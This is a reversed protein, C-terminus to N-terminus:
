VQGTLLKRRRASTVQPVYVQKRKRREFAIGRRLAATAIDSENLGRNFLSVEAIQGNWFSSRTAGAGAVTAGINMSNVTTAGTPATGSAIQRGNLFLRMDTGIQRAALHVWVGTVVSVSSIATITGANNRVIFEYSSGGRSLQFVIPNADSTSRYAMVISNGTTSAAFVWAMVTFPASIIPFSPLDIYDNSADFDLAYRGDSVVWDTAADM